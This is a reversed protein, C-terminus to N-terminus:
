RTPEVFEVASPKADPDAKQGEGGVPGPSAPAAAGPASSSSVPASPAAAPQGKAGSSSPSAPHAPRQGRLSTAIAADRSQRYLSRIAAYEDLSTRRLEKIPDLYQTRTDLTETGMQVYNFVELGASSVVAGTPHAWIDAVRGAGDRLNSPGFFPLMLYPGEEFGWAGLTVGIDTQHGKPGGSELVADQFGLMGFTSNIMFRGLSDAAAAPNGQLLDNGAVYPEELNVLFNHLAQRLWDPFHERYGEAVPEMIAEDLYMNVAFLVRNTPELPDNVAEAEAREEPDDPLTTCGSLITGALLTMAAVAAASVLRRVM